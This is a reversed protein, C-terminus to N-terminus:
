PNLDCLRKVILFSSKRYIVPNTGAGLNTGQEAASGHPFRAAAAEFCHLFILPYDGLSISRIFQGVRGFPILSCFGQCFLRLIRPKFIKVLLPWLFLTYKPSFKHGFMWFFWGHSHNIKEFFRFFWIKVMKTLFLWQTCWPLKSFFILFVAM